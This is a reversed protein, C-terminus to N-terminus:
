SCRAANSKARPAHGATTSRWRKGNRSTSFEHRARVGSEQGVRVLGALERRIDADITEMMENTDQTLGREFSELATTQPLGRDM